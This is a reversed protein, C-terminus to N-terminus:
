SGAEDAGDDLWVLYRGGEGEWKGRRRGEAGEVGLCLSSIQSVCERWVRLFEDLDAAGVAFIEEIQDVVRVGDAFASGLHKFAHDRQRVRLPTPDGLPLPQIPVLLPNISSLNNTNYTSSNILPQNSYM